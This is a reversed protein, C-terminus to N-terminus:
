DGFPRFALMAEHVLGNSALWDPQELRAPRGRLDTVRGGAEAVLLAGAAVDWPSLTYQVYADTWGAAVSCFGLAAAGRSRVADVHPAARAVYDACQRRAPQRRPWDVSLICSEPEARASVHLREGNLWAGGGCTATFLQDLLPDYVAGCQVAGAISMAVSVCFMPLGRAYNTTGDLPDVYWVPRGPDAKRHSDSEESVVLGEPCGERIIALAVQEAALDAETVIDRPGKVRVQHPHRYREALLAGAERAARVAIRLVSDATPSCDATM